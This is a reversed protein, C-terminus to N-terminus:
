IKDGLVQIIVCGKAYSFLEVLDDFLVLSPTAQNTM